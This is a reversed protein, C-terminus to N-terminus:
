LVSAEPWRACVAPRRVGRSAASLQDHAARLWQVDPEELGGFRLWRRGTSKARSLVDLWDRVDQPSLIVEPAGSWGALIRGVAGSLEARVAANKKDGLSDPFVALLSRLRKAVPGSMVLRVAEGQPVAQLFEVM